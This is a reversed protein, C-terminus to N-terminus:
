AVVGYSDLHNCQTQAPVSLSGLDRVLRSVEGRAADRTPSTVPM